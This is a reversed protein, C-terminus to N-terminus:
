AELRALGGLTEHGGGGPFGEHLDAGPFLYDALDRSSNYTEILTSKSMPPMSESLDMVEITEMELILM